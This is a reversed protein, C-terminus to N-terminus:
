TSTPRFTIPLVYTGGVSLGHNDLTKYNLTSKIRKDFTEDNTSIVLIEQDSNIIFHVIVTKDESLDTQDIKELYKLLQQSFTTPDSNLESVSAMSNTTIIAVLSLATLWSIFTKM